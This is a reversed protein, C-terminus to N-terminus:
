GCVRRWIPRVVVEVLVTMTRAASEAGDGVTTMMSDLGFTAGVDGDAAAVLV